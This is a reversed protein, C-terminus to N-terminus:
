RLARGKSTARRNKGIRLIRTTRVLIDSALLGLIASFCTRVYFLRFPKASEFGHNIADDRHQISSVGVACWLTIADVQVAEEGDKVKDILSAWCRIFWRRGADLLGAVSM